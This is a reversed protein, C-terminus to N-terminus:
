IVKRRENWRGKTAALAADADAMLKAIQDATTQLGASLTILTTEIEALIDANSLGELAKPAVFATDLRLIEVLETHITRVPDLREAVNTFVREERVLLSKEKIHDELGFPGLM